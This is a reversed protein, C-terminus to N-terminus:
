RPLIAAGLLERIREIAPPPGFRKRLRDAIERSFSDNQLIDVVRAPNHPSELLIADVRSYRRWASILQSRTFVGDSDIYYPGYRCVFHDATQEHEWEKRVLCAIDSRDGIWYHLASAFILCGGDRWGCEFRDVFGRVANSYAFRYVPPRPM